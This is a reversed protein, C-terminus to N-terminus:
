SLTYSFGILIASCILWMRLAYWLNWQLIKRGPVRYRASLALNSGSLPSVGTSLGWGFLFLLGLLSPQPEYSLLIPSIVSISVIPHAGLYAAVMILALSLSLEVAGLQTINLVQVGVHHTFILQIGYAFVGASLFLAVQIGTQPLTQRLHNTLDAALNNKPMFALALLPAAMAIVTIIAFQPALWNAIIVTATFVLPLLLNGSNFAYGNFESNLQTVDRHTILMAILCALIGPAVTEALSMGPAYSYAVGTAIFFPSWFAAASYIRSIVMTQAQDLQEQKAIRDAVITIMSLNIVAGIFNLQTMTAWIGGTQTQNSSIASKTLSLFSIGLFLGILGLNSNILRSPDIPDGLYYASSVLLCGLIALAGTQTKAAIPFKPFLAIAALWALSASLEIPALHFQALVFCLLAAALISGLIM